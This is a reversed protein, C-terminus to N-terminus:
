YQAPLVQGGQKQLAEAALRNKQLQRARTLQNMMDQFSLVKQEPAPTLQPSQAVPIAPLPVATGSRAVGALQSIAGGRGSLIDLLGAM